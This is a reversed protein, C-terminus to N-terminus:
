VCSPKPQRTKCVPCYVHSTDSHKRGWQTYSELCTGHFEHGCKLKDGCSSTKQCIKCIEGIAGKQVCTEVVIGDLERHDIDDLCFRHSILKTVTKTKWDFMRLQREISEAEVGGKKRGRRRLLQEKYYNIAIREEKGELGAIIIDDDM